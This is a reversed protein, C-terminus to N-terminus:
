FERLMARARQFYEEGGEVVGRLEEWSHMGLALAAEEMMDLGVLVLDTERAPAGEDAWAQFQERQDQLYHLVELALENLAAQSLRGQDWLQAISRLQRAVASEAQEPLDM